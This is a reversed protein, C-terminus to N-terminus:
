EDEINQSHGTNDESQHIDDVNKQKQVPKRSESDIFFLAVFM